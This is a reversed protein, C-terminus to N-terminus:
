LRGGPPIMRPPGTPTVRELLVFQFVPRTAPPYDRHYDVKHGSDREINELDRPSIGASWASTYRPALNDSRLSTAAITYLRAGDALAGRRFGVQDEIEDLTSGPALQDLFTMYGGIKPWVKATAPVVKVVQVGSRRARALIIGITAERLENLAAPGGVFHNKSGIRDSLNAAYWSAPDDSYEQAEFDMAGKGGLSQGMGPERLM